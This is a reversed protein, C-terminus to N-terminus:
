LEKLRTLRGLHRVGVDTVGIGGLHLMELSALGSIAKLGEDTYYNKNMNPDIFHPRPLDLERLRLLEALHRLGADTIDRDLLRLSELTKIAKLHALGADTVQAHAINLKRLNPLRKLVAIGDNTIRTASYLDLEQLRPIEALHGLGVDTVRELRGLHLAELNPMKKLHRLGVDTFSKSILMLYRLQPVEALHVLGDNTIRGGLCLEILSNMKALHLLGANTVRSEGLYLHTLSPLQAVHAMGADDMLPPPRLWSLDKLVVVHKLGMSTISTNGLDLARLGTLHAVHEMCSNGPKGGGAYSGQIALLYLDDPRLRRLPSLDRWAHTQDVILGVEYGAPISVVGQAQGFYELEDHTAWRHFVEPSQPMTSRIMLRGLSRDVPFHLVRPGSSVRASGSDVARSQSIVLLSCATLLMLTRPKAM